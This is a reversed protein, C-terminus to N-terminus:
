EGSRQYRKIVKDHMAPNEFDLEIDRELIIDGNIKVSKEVFLTQGKVYNDEFWSKDNNRRFIVDGNIISSGYLRIDGNTTNVDGNVSVKKLTIDGNVTSVSSGVKGDPLIDIDGNVTEVSRKSSFSVGTTISGNVTEAFTVSVNDGIRIDGNVTDVEQASVNDHLRVGGNVSSVDSVTKGSSVEVDGFVSSVGKIDWDGSGKGGVHIVCGSLATTALMAALLPSLATIKKNM